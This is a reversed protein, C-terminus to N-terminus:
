AFAVAPVREQRHDQLVPAGEVLEQERVGHRLLVQPEPLDGPGLEERCWLAPGQDLPWHRSHDGVELVKAHFSAVWVGPAERRPAQLTRPEPAKRFVSDM